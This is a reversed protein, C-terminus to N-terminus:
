STNVTAAVCLISSISKVIYQFYEHLTNTRNIIIHPKTSIFFFYYIFKVYAFYLLLLHLFRDFQVIFKAISPAATPECIFVLFDSNLRQEILARRRVKEERERGNNHKAIPVTAYIRARVCTCSFRLSYTRCLFSEIDIDFFQAVIVSNLRVRCIEDGNFQGQM